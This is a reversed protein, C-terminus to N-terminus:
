VYFTPIDMTDDLSVNKLNANLQIKWERSGNEIAKHNNIFEKLYPIIM